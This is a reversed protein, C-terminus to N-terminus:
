FRHAAPVARPRRPLRRLDGGVVAVVAIAYSLDGAEMCEADRNEEEEPEGGDESAGEVRREDERGSEQRPSQQESCGRKPHRSGHGHLVFAPEHEVRARVQDDLIAGSM